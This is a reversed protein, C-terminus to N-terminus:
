RASLRRDSLMCFSILAVLLFQDPQLNHRRVLRGVESLLIVLTKTSDPHCAPCAESPKYGVAFRFVGPVRTGPTIQEGCSWPDRRLSPLAGPAYM